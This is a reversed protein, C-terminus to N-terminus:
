IFKFKKQLEKVKILENQHYTYLSPSYKHADKQLLLFEERNRLALCITMMEADNIITDM